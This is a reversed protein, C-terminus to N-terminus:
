REVVNHRSATHDIMFAQLHGIHDLIVMEGLADAIRPPARKEGDKSELCCTGPLPYDGHRRREGALPTRPWATANHDGFTERNPPVTARLAPRAQM